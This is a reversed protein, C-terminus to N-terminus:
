RSKSPPVRDNVLHAIVQERRNARAVEVISKAQATRQMPDALGRFSAALSRQYLYEEILCSGMVATAVTEVAEKSRRLRDEARELCSRWLGGSTKAIETAVLRDNESWEQQNEFTNVLLTLAAIRDEPKPTAALPAQVGTAFVLLLTIM